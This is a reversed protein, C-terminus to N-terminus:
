PLRQGASEKITMLSAIMLIGVVMVYFAPVLDDKTRGVLYTVVLPATGGFLGFALNYSVSFGSCRVRAPLLEVMTAPTVAFSVAFIVAFGAQGLLAAAIGGAHMLGWLPWSFLVASIAVGYLVPKRGIRDSLKAAPIIVALMVLLNLSSIDLAEESSFHLARAQYAAAYIFMTYFGVGEVLLLGMIQLMGRRHDRVAALLPAREHAGLAALAPSEGLQRRLVVGVAAVVGGFLFPLRWGWSELEAESFGSSVLAGVLSGLLIGIINAFKPLCAFFGRQAAPAQEAVFVISGAYEGAVSVGQVIRFLILLVPALRGIHGYVPLCGIATTAMGMALISVVLAAKRGRRDGIHGFLAGGLPRAAYGLAFVGFASLLSTWADDSPFFLKGLIPALFGYVAFDYWELVNGIM